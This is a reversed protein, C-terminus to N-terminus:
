RARAALVADVVDLVDDRCEDLVRNIETGDLVEDTVGAAANVVLSLAAYRMEAETALTAEPISTMGVVCAGLLAAMRIEAPSEFRPGEFCAYIGGDILHQGVRDGASLLEERLQPHYVQQVDIHKVGTDGGEFFTHARNKTFDLFDDVVVLSGPTWMADIGGVVNLAFIDECGADQLGAIIARYNILHPPVSHSEGHRPVFVVPTHWHGTKAAVEGYRSRLTLRHADDIRLGAFGTGAILGIPATM